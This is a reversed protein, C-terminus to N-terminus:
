KMVDIAVDRLDLTDVGANVCFRMDNEIKADTNGLALADDFFGRAIWSSASCDIEKPMLVGM